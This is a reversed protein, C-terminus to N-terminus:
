RQALQRPAQTGTDFAVRIQARERGEPDSARGVEQQPSVASVLQGM